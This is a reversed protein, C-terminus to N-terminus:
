GTFTSDTAHTASSFFTCDSKKRRSASCAHTFNRSSGGRQRQYKRETAQKTGASNLLVVDQVSGTASSDIRQSFCWGIVRQRTACIIGYRAQPTAIPTTDM